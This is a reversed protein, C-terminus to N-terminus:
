LMFIDNYGEGGGGGGGGGGSGRPSHKNVCHSSGVDIWLVVAGQPPM